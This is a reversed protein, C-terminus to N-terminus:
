HWKKIISKQNNIYNEPKEEEQETRAIQHTIYNNIQIGKEKYKTDMVPNQNTTIILNM